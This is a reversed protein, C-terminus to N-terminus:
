RARFLQRRFRMYDFYKDFSEGVMAACINYVRSVTRGDFIVAYFDGIVCDNYTLVQRYERLYSCDCMIRGFAHYKRPNNPCVEGWEVIEMLESDEYCYMRYMRYVM